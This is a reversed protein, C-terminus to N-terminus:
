KLGQKIKLNQCLFIRNKTSTYFIKFTFYQNHFDCKDNLVLVTYIKLERSNFNRTQPKNKRPLIRKFIM